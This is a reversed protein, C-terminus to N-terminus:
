RVDIVHADGVVVSETETSTRGLFLVQGLMTSVITVSIRLVPALSGFRTARLHPREDVRYEVM